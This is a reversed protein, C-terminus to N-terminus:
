EVREPCESKPIDCFRCESKSPARGPPDERLLIDLYYHLGDIFKKDIAAARIEIRKDLNYVVCGKLSKGLYREHSLPLLHMYIMVQLQDSIREKGTKADYVCISGDGFHCILDAKGSITAGGFTYKFGNQNEMYQETSELELDQRLERLLQNHQMTWKALDFDSPVKDFDQHHTKFWGMWDCTQEGAMLKSLWTVWIYPSKRRRTM